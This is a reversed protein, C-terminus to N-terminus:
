FEGKLVRVVNRKEIVTLVATSFLLEAAVVAASVGLVVLPSVAGSSTATSFPSLGVANAILAGVTQVVAIVGFLRLFERYTRRFGLGFLRRVVIKRSYRDFIITLSQAILVLMGVLLAVAAIAVDRVGDQLHQLELLVYENMTVLHRLNDDLRLNRLTPALAQQTAATDADRLRVKLATDPSGTIANARDIGLSNALTMVQLIPDTVLNRNGPAVKPNFSFVQQHDALWVIRVQQRTLRPPTRRGFISQEAQSAGQQADTGTRGRQFYDLLQAQRPKDSVPALVVWDTTSETIDVVQGTSDRLPYARLYNPNVQMSRFTGPETPTALAQPEYASAEVFLSGMKNLVPYLDYVEAATPGAQGTQAEVLDNGIATPYFVGYDKTKSWNGLKAREADVNRYQAWLGAGVTILLVASVAKIATNFAFIGRTDKRNKVSDSVKIRSIYLCTILSVALMVVTTRALSAAVAAVFGVTSDHVAGAALVALLAAGAMVLVVIRGTVSWWVHITGFGHLKMVATRKAEYLMRYALLLATLFIILYQVATM